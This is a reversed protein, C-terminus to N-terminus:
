SGDHKTKIGKEHEGMKGVWSIEAKQKERETLLCGERCTLNRELYDDGDRSALAQVGSWRVPSSGLGYIPCVKQGIM